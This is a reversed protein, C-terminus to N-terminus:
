EFFACVADAVGRMQARTLHPHLPLALHRACALEAGPWSATPPTTPVGAFAASRPLPKPYYVRTGIGHAALHRALADRDATHVAYVYLCRGDAGPRPALLGHERLPAFREDYYDVVTRRRDLLGDLAPLRGLQFAAQIEDFRSNFGIEHHVFRQRGDQGHNRLMRVARAPEAEDSLVVAGEGVMGFPKVPYFSYLGLDGWAGAPRGRLTAGQAVAADEIVELRHRVALEIIAPMDAMTSFVHAAIIARTRESVRSEADVPDIVGTEPHVDAFVPKAGTGLVCAALPEAGFAPVIVEDGPGVRLARLSLTLAGTGSACAIVDAVGTRERLARELEATRRGLIFKQEPDTGVERVSTLLLEREAAPLPPHGYPVTAPAGAGTALDDITM